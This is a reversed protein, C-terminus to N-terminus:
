PRCIDQPRGVGVGDHKVLGARQGVAVGGDHPLVRRCRAGLVFDQLDRGARFLVVGVRHRVGDDTRGGRLADAVVLHVALHLVDDGVADGALNAALLGDDAALVKDKLVLTAADRRGLRFNSANGGSYEWRYRAMPPTSAPTMQM